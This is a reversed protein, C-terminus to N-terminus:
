NADKGGKMTALYELDILVSVIKLLELDAACKDPAMAYLNGIAEIGESVLNKVRDRNKM